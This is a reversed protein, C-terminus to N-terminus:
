ESDPHELERIKNNLEQIEIYEDYPLNDGRLERVLIKARLIEIAKNIEGVMDEGFHEAPKDSIIAIRKEAALIAYKLKEEIPKDTLELINIVDFPKGEGVYNDISQQLEEPTSNHFIGRSTEIDSERKKVIALYKSKGREGESMMESSSEDPEIPREIPRPM